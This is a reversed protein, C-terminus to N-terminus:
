KNLFSESAFNIEGTKNL